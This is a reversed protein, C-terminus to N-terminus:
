VAATSVRRRIALTLGIAIVLLPVGFINLLTIINETFDIQKKQDKEIERIEKQIQKQKAEMEKIKKIQAPDIMIQGNKVQLPGMEQALKDLESQKQAISPRFDKEVEERLEDMKTFPRNTSARSRVQLLDGGGSLTEVANLFMPLNGETAILGGTMPDQQVTFADYMMDADAFLVVVGEANESELITGDTPKAPEAPKAEDKKAEVTVAPAAAPTAAPAAPTAAPAPAAAPTTTVTVPAATAAPAPAAAAPAAPAPTASTKPATTDDQAGGGERPMQMGPPLQMGPPM